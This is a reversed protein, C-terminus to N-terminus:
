VGDRWNVRRAEQDVSVHLLILRLRGAIRWWPTIRMRSLSEVSVRGALGSRSGVSSVAHEHNAKRVALRLADSWHFGSTFSATNTAFGRTTALFGLDSCHTERNRYFKTGGHGKGLLVVGRAKGARLLFLSTSAGQKSGRASHLIVPADKRPALQRKLSLCTVLKGRDTTSSEVLQRVATGASLGSRRSPIQHTGASIWTQAEHARCVLFGFQHALSETVCVVSFQRSVVIVCEGPGLRRSFLSLGGLGCLVGCGKSRAHSEATGNHIHHGDAIMQSVIVLVVDSYQQLFWLAVCSSSAFMSDVHGHLAQLFRSCWCGGCVRCTTTVHFLLVISLLGSLTCLGVVSRRIDIGGMGYM